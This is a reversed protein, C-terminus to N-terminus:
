SAAARMAKEIASPFAGNTLDILSAWEPRLTIRMPKPFMQAYQARWGTAEGEGLYKTVMAPYEDLEGDVVECRATGKISLSRAPWAEYDIVAAAAAELGLARMKPSSPPCCFVLQEGDWHFWLPIVTPTGDLGVYAFRAPVAAHLLEQAMPEHLLNPNSNTTPM